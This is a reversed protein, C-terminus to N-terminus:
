GEQESPRLTPEQEDTTPPVYPGILKRMFESVPISELVKAILELSQEAIRRSKLTNSVTADSLGTRHALDRASMCRLDLEYRIRHGNARISM